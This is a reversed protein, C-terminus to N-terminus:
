TAWAVTGRTLTLSALAGPTWNMSIQHFVDAAPVNGREFDFRATKGLTVEIVEIATRTSACYRLFRDPLHSAPIRVGRAAFTRYAEEYKEERKRTRTPLRGCKLLQRLFQALITPNGFIADGCLHSETRLNQGLRKGDITTAPVRFHSAVWRLMKALAQKEPPKLRLCAKRYLKTPM